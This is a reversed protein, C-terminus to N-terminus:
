RAMLIGSRKSSASAKCSNQATCKKWCRVARRATATNAPCRDGSRSCWTRLRISFDAFNRWVVKRVSPFLFGAIFLGDGFHGYVSVEYGFESFLRKLARLYDGLAEPPVASDEWGPYTEPMGPVHATAALAPKAFRGSGSKGNQRKLSAAMSPPPNCNISWNGRGRVPRKLHRAASSRLSGAAGPPLLKTDQAHVHKKWVFEVLEHDLGELAIPHSRLVRPVAAAAACVDEFGLLALARCPPSPVLNLTAQLVVVCTGETGVLARAVNFGNEEFLQDLNEYGSM